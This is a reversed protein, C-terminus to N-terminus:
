PVEKNIFKTILDSFNDIKTAMDAQQNRIEALAEVVTNDRKTDVKSKGLMRWGKGDPGMLQDKTDSVNKDLWWAWDRYTMGATKKFNEYKESLWSMDEGKMFSVGSMENRVDQRFIGMDINGPDWKGQSAGAYEKHGIARNQDHGMHKLCAAFGTVVSEYQVDSWFTRHPNARARAESGGGDHAVEVGILYRNGNDRPVWNSYSGEGAHWAIGVGCVIWTGDPKVLCQSCLDLQPHHAIGMESEGYSGTHHFMMGRIEGFDGHGNQLYGGCDGHPQHLKVTLGAARLVEPLWIPDGM